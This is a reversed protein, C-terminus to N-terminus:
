ACRGLGEPAAGFFAAASLQGTEGINVDCGTKAQPNILGLNLPGFGKIMEAYNPSAEQTSAAGSIFRDSPTTAEALRGTMDALVGPARGAVEGVAAFSLGLLNGAANVAVDFIDRAPPDQLAM